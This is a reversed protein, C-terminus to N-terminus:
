RVDPRVSPVPVPGPPLQVLSLRLHFAVNEVGTMENGTGPVGKDTPGRDTTYRIHPCLGTLHPFCRDLHPSTFPNNCVPDEAACVGNSKAKLDEPLSPHYIANYPDALLGIGKINASVAPWDVGPSHKLEDLTVRIVWAGQSYGALLIKGHPCHSVRDLIEKKLNTAGERVSAPTPLGDKVLKAVFEAQGAKSLPAAKKVIDRTLQLAIDGQLEPVPAATYPIGSVQVGDPKLNDYVAGIEPGLNQHEITTEAPGATPTASEGSGRLGM